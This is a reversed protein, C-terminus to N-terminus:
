NISDNELDNSITKIINKSDKSVKRAEKRAKSFIEKLDANSVTQGKSKKELYYDMALGIAYTLGFVLPITTFGALGPLGVKYLGLAIQQAIMGLGVIGGIEVLLDKAEKQSLPIGRIASLREGMYAQITTLFYIDAFPIPQTAVAACTASFLIIIKSVKEDISIDERKEISLVEKNLKDLAKKVLKNLFNTNDKEM